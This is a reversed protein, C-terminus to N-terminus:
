KKSWLELFPHAKWIAEDVLHRDPRYYSAITRGSFTRWGMFTEIFQGAVGADALGTVLSRRIAHWGERPRPKRVGGVMLRQFMRNLTDRSKPDAQFTLAPAVVEPIMHRRQRGGKATTVVLEDGALGADLVRALEIARLGFVTSLATVGLEPQGVRRARAILAKVDGRSLMPVGRDEVPLHLKELPWPHGIARFLSRVATLITPVSSSSAGNAMLRDVFGTIDQATYTEKTGVMDLFRRAQLITNYITDPSYRSV